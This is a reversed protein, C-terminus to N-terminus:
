IKIICASTMNESDFRIKIEGESERMFVAFLKGAMMRRVPSKYLTLDNLDGSDMGVLHAPGEISVKVSPAAVFVELGDKDVATLEIQILEDQGSMEWVKASLGVAEGTTRVIRKAVPEGNKYGVAKLEGPEYPVDFTLHLDNTTARTNMGDNWNKKAGTRPCEYGKRGVRRGNIYLVVEDCNTYCIVQKFEGESGHHNWHPMLYLTIDEDNWISRFYYYSDKEFGATDIPGCLAGRRPWRTEGLYDIGTWLYDGAVYDHTLTFRWLAENRLIQAEYSGYFGEATYDGRVGSVSPNESGLMRWKPHLVRDEEYFTEARNRWRGVYNYGVVDLANLFEETASWAPVSAINDCASTVM